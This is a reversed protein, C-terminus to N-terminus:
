KPPTYIVSIGFIEIMESPEPDRDGFEEVLAQNIPSPPDAEVTLIGGDELWTAVLDVWPEAEPVGQVAAPGFGRVANVALARLADADNYALMAMSPEDPFAEGVEHAVTLLAELGGTDEIQWLFSRFEFAAEFQEEFTREDVAETIAAAAQAPTIISLDFETKGGFLDAFNGTEFYTIAGTDENWSAKLEFDGCLCDLDNEGLVTMVTQIQALEDASMEEDSLMEFVSDFIAGLEYAFGDIDLSIDTPLLWHFETLDLTILDSNFVTEGGFDLSYGEIRWQGLSMFNTETHEPMKWESVARYVNALDFDSVEYAKLEGQMDLKLTDNDFGADEVPFAGEMDFTNDFYALYGIDGRKYDSMVTVPIIMNMSMGQEAAAMDMVFEANSLALGDLSFARSAAAYAQLLHVGDISDPGIDEDQTFTVEYPDLTLGDLVLKGARIDYDRIVMLDTPAIVDGSPDITNVLADNYERMMREGLEDFGVSSIGTLTIRDALRLTLDLNTGELRGTLADGDFGWFEATDAKLGFEIGDVMVTFTFDNVVSAGNDGKTVSSFSFTTDGPLQAALANFADTSFDSVTATTYEGELLEAALARGTPAESVAEVLESVASDTDSSPTCASLGLLAVAATTVVLSNKM